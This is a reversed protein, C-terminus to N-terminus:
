NELGPRYLQSPIISGNQPGAPRPTVSNGFNFPNPTVGTSGGGGAKNLLYPLFIKGMSAGFDMFNSRNANSQQQAANLSNSAGSLPGAALGLMSNASGMMQQGMSGLQDNANSRAMMPMMSLQAAKQRQLDATARDRGAGASMRNTMGSEAGRYTDTMSAIQPALTNQIAASNGGALKTYYQMAKGIAPEAISHQRQSVDSILKSLNVQQGALGTQSLDTGGSAGTGNVGGPANSGNASGNGGNGGVHNLAGNLALNGGAQIGTNALGRLMPNAIHGTARGALGGLATSGAGAIAGRVGGNVAGLGASLAMELPLGIGPIFPLALQGISAAGHLLNSFFGRKHQATQGAQQQVPTTQTPMQAQGSYPSYM